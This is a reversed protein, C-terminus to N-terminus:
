EAAETEGEVSEKSALIFAITEAQKHAPVGLATLQKVLKEIESLSRRSPPENIYDRLDVEVGNFEPEPESTGEKLSVALANTKANQVYNLGCQIIYIRQEESPVILAFGAENKVSYRIFENENFLSFGDKEAKVWNASVGTDKDKKATEAKAQIEKVTTKISETDDSNKVTEEILKAYARVTIKETTVSGATALEGAGVTTTSM